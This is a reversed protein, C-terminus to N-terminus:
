TTVDTDVRGTRRLHLLYAQVAGRAVHRLAPDLAAGYIRDAIDDVTGAGAAVADLVQQQREERHRVYRDLAAAPDTFPPGHAPYLIRPALQRLRSLSELYEGVDGEPAAVVASDLGGMMLDGCFIADEAPWHLAAHHVTHGPTDLAVLDGHDTPVVQGDRLTGAGPELVPADLREALEQAGAIHDPHDHTVLIVASEAGRVGALISELHSPAASGPDIIAVRKEGVLYTITGDATMASANPALVPRPRRNM